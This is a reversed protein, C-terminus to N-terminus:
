QKTETHYVSLHEIQKYMDGMRKIQEFKGTDNDKKNTHMLKQMSFLREKDNM